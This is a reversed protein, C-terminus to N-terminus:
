GLPPAAAPPSGSGDGDRERRESQLVRMMAGAAETLMDDAAEMHEPTVLPGGGDALWSAFVGMAEPHARLFEVAFGGLALVGCWADTVPIIVAHDHEGHEVPSGDM